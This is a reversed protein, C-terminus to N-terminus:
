IARAIRSGDAIADAILRPESCDGIAYTEPVKRELSKLLGTNPALPVAPVITDAEITQRNGEKTIITLGKDTIEVYQVGGMMTVGKKRFWISLQFFQFDVMGEGLAETTDVITVKRGRKTLFEGLECGQIRGGIIVVRKGIPMWFRTLWRLAKPRFFRLYFRLKRHLDASSVVNRRNIGAIEPITPIGGAALIVVDPKIEEIVSLNVEKGLKIKVGLKTTQRKLYRVIAPLDEIETGKVLAAIPLLGGLKNSKEYLTVDHGRLAAVRAAEM